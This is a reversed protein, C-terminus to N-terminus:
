KLNIQFNCLEDALTLHFAHELRKFSSKVLNGVMLREILM